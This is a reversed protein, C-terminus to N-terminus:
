KPSYQWEWGDGGMSYILTGETNPVDLVAKGVAKEGPGLNNPIMQAQPFCNDAAPSSVTNVTTGNPAIAKWQFSHFSISTMGSASFDPEPATTAEISLAVLHGNESPFNFGATCVPDVEIDTITFSLARKDSSAILGLGAPEGVEKIINGRTSRTIEPKAAETEATASEVSPTPQAPDETGGCSSLALAAFALIVASSIRKNM